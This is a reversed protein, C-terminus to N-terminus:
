GDFSDTCGVTLIRTMACPHPLNQRTSIEVVPLVDIGFLVGNPLDHRPRESCPNKTKEPDLGDGDELYQSQFFLRVRTRHSSCKRYVQYGVGSYSLSRCFVRLLIVLGSRQDFYVFAEHPQQGVFSFLM